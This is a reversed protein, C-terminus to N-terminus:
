VSKYRESFIAQLTALVEDPNFKSLFGDAGMALGKDKNSSGSMSSHVLVKVGAFRADGKILKTLKFGDMQPMEIDTIIVPWTDVVREGSAEATAAIQELKVWAEVGNEACDSGVKMTELVKQLQARAFASDDAYFVKIDTPLADDAVFTEPIYAVKDKGAIVHLVQEVDLISALRGDPLRTVGTLKTKGALMPPPPYIDSWNIRVITEVSEVLFAQTTRSFETIIMVPPNEPQPYGCFSILNIVSVLEGRLFVMGSVFSPSAPVGTIDVARMVEKVKFVNIGYTEPSGVKFLLLEMMNTGALNARADISAMLNRGNDAASDPPPTATM